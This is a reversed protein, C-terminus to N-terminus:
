SMLFISFVNPDFPLLTDLKDESKCTAAFVAIKILLELCCLLCGCQPYKHFPLLYGFTMM